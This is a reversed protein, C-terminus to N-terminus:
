VSFLTPRQTLWPNAEELRAALAIITTEAAPKSVIQIGAPLGNADFGTPIAIAPLGSANFPPCPAIWNIIKDLTEQPSLEAWEGIRIPQHLYVPLILADFQEFFAVIRRSIIQMQSVAQLYEGASGSREINWRNIPSLFELPIGVSAAGAQWIKTFPEELDRMDPCAPELIHGMAELHGVTQEIGQQFIDAAEGFSALAASFAIRLQKPKQRTAELFSMEPEPLWYPDGTTYGSMVDLLAAADAVTRALSGNTAIGNLYDGVPACSVRGRSPKIGVIGCCTAPGRISGGGDSGQAIPCLGAAVAAAAGGSSGGATYDPNWPNRTPPFGPAEIYPFSGLESTATKGLIIFGATRMRVVVGDDYTGIKDKLAAVGLTLPMGTVSNLDKIATPVGFFPPLADPDKLNALQETKAQAEALATEAAVSFYSGLRSDYQEIRDLYLEVLELPSIQRDRILRAQELAPTFALDVLNM